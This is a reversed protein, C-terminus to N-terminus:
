AAEKSKMGSVAFVIAAVMLVIMAAMQLPHASFSRIVGLILAAAMLLLMVGAIVNVRRGKAAMAAAVIGILAALMSLGIYIARTVLDETTEATSEEVVLYGADLADMGEDNVKAAIKENKMLVAYGADVQAQGEEFTDLQEKGDALQQEADTLQKAADILKQRGAAIESEAASLKKEGAEIEKAAADLKAKGAELQKQADALSAEVQAAVQQRVGAHVQETVLARVQAMADPNAEIQAKVTDYYGGYVTERIQAEAAELQEATAEPNAAKYAELQNQIQPELQQKVAADVGQPMNQEVLANVSDANAAIYDATNKDIIAEKNALSYEYTALKEKYEKMGAAYEAKGAALTNKGDNYENIGAALDSQGKAYDSKGQEYAATGEDYALKGDEYAQRNAELTEVGAKLTDLSELTEAKEKEGDSKEQLVDRIGLVGAVLMFLCTLVMIVSIIKRSM